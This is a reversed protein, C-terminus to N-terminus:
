LTTSQAPGLSALRRAGPGASESDSSASARAEDRTLQSGGRSGSTAGRPGQQGALVVHGGLAAGVDPGRRCGEDGLGSGRENPSEVAEDGDDLVVEGYVGGGEVGDVLSQGDEGEIQEAVRAVTLGM